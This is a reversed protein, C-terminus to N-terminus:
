PIGPRTMAESLSYLCIVWLNGCHCIGHRSATRWCRSCTSNRRNGAVNRSCAPCTNRWAGCRPLSKRRQRSRPRQDKIDAITVDSWYTLKSREEFPFDFLTALMMTTLEISVHEVWDFTQNRPLADLVMCTRERILGEMNARNDPAVIPSAVKRQDDHKPPDMQISSPRQLDEPLDRLVIGSANSFIEHHVESHMTDKYKTVAWYPGWESGWYPGWESRPVYHVPDERRLCEFYPYWIDDQYLKPDSVDMQDLPMSYAPSAPDHHVSANM